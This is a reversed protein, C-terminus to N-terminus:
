ASRPRPSRVVRINYRDRNQRVWDLAAIVDSTKGSGDAQLVKLSIIRAEPAVGGINGGHEAGAIVDVIHTGHGFQDGTGTGTFDKSFVLRGRVGPYAADLGSDIVAITVNKGTYGSQRVFNGYVLSAGIAERTVAMQGRVDADLSLHAVDPDAAAAELQSASGELVTGSELVKTVRLGFRAALQQARAGDGQVIVQLAARTPSGLEDSLDKSLRARHQAAAPMALAVVLAAGLVVALWRRVMTFGGSM